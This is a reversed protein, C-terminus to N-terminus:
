LDLIAPLVEREAREVDGPFDIETWPLGTVDVCGFRGAVIMARLVEEYPEARGAGTTRAKTEAIVRPLDAPAVKFFGISEGVLDAHGVWKKRLDFPRGNNVPVLVPDDDETSYDRDILLTTPEEAQVLRRLMETPYLVDGDMLLVPETANALDPLSAEFSLVSGETFDPNIRTTVAVPHKRRLDTLASEIQEREYGTVIVLERIGTEALRQLHWDLLNRGGFPLLIKPRKGFIGELRKGVGAAYIIAKMKISRPLKEPGRKAPYPFAASWLLCPLVPHLDLTADRM